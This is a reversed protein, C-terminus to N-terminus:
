LDGRGQKGTEKLHGDELTMPTQFSGDPNNQFYGLIYSKGSLASLGSFGTYEDIDRAEETQIFDALEKEMEYFLTDAFYRLEAMEEQELSQQTRLIFYGLPISLLICFIIIFIKLQKM